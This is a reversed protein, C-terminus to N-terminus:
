EFTKFVSNMHAGSDMVTDYYFRLNPVFRLKLEKALKTRFFGEASKFGKKAENKKKNDGYICFYIYANRLDDSMKVETITAFELRQDKVKKRLIESLFIKIKSSIREARSFPKM